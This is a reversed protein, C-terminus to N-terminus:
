QIEYISDLCVRIAGPVSEIKGFPHDALFLIDPFYISHGELIGGRRETDQGIYM